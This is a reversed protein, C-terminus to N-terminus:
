IKHTRCFGRVIHQESYLHIIFIHTIRVVSILCIHKNRENRKQTAYLMKYAYILQQPFLYTIIINQRSLYM